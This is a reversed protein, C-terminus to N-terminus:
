PQVPWDIAQPFGSQSTLDRLAQRYASWAAQQESTMSAWRDPLVYVDSEKLLLDRHQRAKLILVDPDQRFGNQKDYLWGIGPSVEIDLNDPLLYGNEPTFSDLSEIEIINAVKDGIIHIARMNFGM